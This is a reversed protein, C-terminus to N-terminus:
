WCTFKEKFDDYPFYCGLRTLEAKWFDDIRQQQEPTLLEGSAGARGRRVMKGHSELDKDEQAVAIVVVDLAEFEDYM